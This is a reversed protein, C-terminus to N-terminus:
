RKRELSSAAKESTGYNPIIRKRLINRRKILQETQRKIVKERSIVGIRQNSQRNSQHSSQQKRELSSAARNTAQPTSQRKRESYSAAKKTAQRKIAQDNERFLHRVRDPAGNTARETIQTERELCSATCLVYLRACYLTLQLIV